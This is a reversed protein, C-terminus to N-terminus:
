VVQGQGVAMPIGTKVLDGHSKLNSKINLNALVNNKLSGASLPWYIKRLERQM